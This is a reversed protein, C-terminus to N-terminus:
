HLIFAKNIYLLQFDLLLKGYIMLLSFPFEVHMNSTFQPKM